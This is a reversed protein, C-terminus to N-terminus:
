VCGCGRARVERVRAVWVLVGAAGRGGGDAPSEAGPLLSAPLGGGRAGGPFTEREHVVQLGGQHHVRVPGPHVTPTAPPRLSRLTSVSQQQERAEEPFLGVVARTTNM